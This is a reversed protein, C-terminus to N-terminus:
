AGESTLEAAPGNVLELWAGGLPGDVPIVTEGVVISTIPSTHAIWGPVVLVVSSSGRNEVTFGEPCNVWAGGGMLAEPPVFPGRSHRMTVPHNRCEGRHLEYTSGTMTAVTITISM